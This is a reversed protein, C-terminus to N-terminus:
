SLICAMISAAGLPFCLHAIRSTYALMPVRTPTPLPLTHLMVIFAFYAEFLLSTLIHYLHHTKVNASAYADIGSVHIIGKSSPLCRSVIENMDLCDVAAPPLLATHPRTSTLLDRYACESDVSYSKLIVTTSRGRATITYKCLVPPSGPYVIFLMIVGNQYAESRM